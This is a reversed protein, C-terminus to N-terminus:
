FGPDYVVLQCKLGHHSFLFPRQNLAIFMGTSAVVVIIVFPSVNEYWIANHYFKETVYHECNSNEFSLYFKYTQSLTM